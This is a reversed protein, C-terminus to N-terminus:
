SQSDKLLWDIELVKCGFSDINEALRHYGDVDLNKNQLPDVLGIDYGQCLACKRWDM